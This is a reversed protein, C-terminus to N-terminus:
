ASIKNGLEPVDLVPLEDHSALNKEETLPDQVMVINEM